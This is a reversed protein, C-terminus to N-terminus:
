STYTRQSKCMKTMILWVQRQANLAFCLLAIMYVTSYLYIDATFDVLEIAGRLM